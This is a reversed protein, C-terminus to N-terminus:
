SANPLELIFNVPWVWPNNGWPYGRKANLSDWLAVFWREAKMVWDITGEFPPTFGEAVYNDKSKRIDWLREASTGTVKLTIRSADRPMFISPQWKDIAEWGPNALDMPKGYYDAKYFIRRDSDLGFAERVWLSDGVQGYPCKVNIREQTELNIFTWVGPNMTPTVQWHDPNQNVKHLGKLRRTVTKAGNLTARVMDSQMPLPTEKM